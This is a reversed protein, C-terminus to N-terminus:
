INVSFFAIWLVTTIKQWLFKSINVNKNLKQIIQTCKSITEVMEGFVVFMTSTSWFLVYTISVYNKATFYICPSGVFCYLKFSKVNNKSYDCKCTVKINLPPCDQHMSEFGWELERIPKLQLMKFPVLPKNYRMQFTMLNNKEAIYPKTM